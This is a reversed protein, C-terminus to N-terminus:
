INHHCMLLPVIKHVMCRVGLATIVEQYVWTQALHKTGQHQMKGWSTKM